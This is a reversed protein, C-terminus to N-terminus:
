EFVLVKSLLEHGGWPSGPRTFSFPDVHPIHGTEMIWQGTRLHWWLDPDTAPRATMALLGLLLIGALTISRDLQSIRMAFTSVIISDGDGLRRRHTPKRKPLM